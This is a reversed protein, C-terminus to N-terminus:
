DTLQQRDPHAFNIRFRCGGNGHAAIILSAQNSECLERAIYLGLGTGSAEGTYFPEFIQEAVKASMGLGSDIVDIYPREFTGVRGCVLTLAPTHASYRLANEALNWLVQHLQSADMRVILDDEMWQYNLESKALAKREMLEALFHELWPKLSLTEAIAIKRRGIVMVNEIIDNVRRSHEDIIQTLRRDQESLEPSESLLQGAASIAGLPNRIEHAISGTLRGLSALKLQQARQRIEGADELFILTGGTRETGLPTFSVMVERGQKDLVLPEKRNIEDTRWRRYAEFLPVPIAASRVENTIEDTSLMTLAAENTLVAEHKDNLVVIGSRMRQVIYENLRSLNEIDVAREAALAESRRAQDALISALFASGFLAAGLLGAQTYSADSYHLFWVGTITEILAALTAIAAVFIAARPQLVPL